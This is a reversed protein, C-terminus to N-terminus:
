FDVKFGGSEIIKKPNLFLKEKLQAESLAGELVLGYSLPLFSSFNAIGTKRPLPAYDSAIVDITGDALGKKVAEIDEKLGLPPNVKVDLDDKTYTFYHPCTECTIKLGQKKARRILIVSGKKSVHQIHLRGGVKKLVMLYKKIFETELYPRKLGVKYSPSCHAMVLVGKRLIVTLLNLNALYNGDDSFGVVSSKIKDVAVLRKGSLNKTIASVPLAECYRKKKLSRKIAALNDLPPDTNAMYIVVDIGCMKAIRTHGAIDNRLHAHLDIVPYGLFM